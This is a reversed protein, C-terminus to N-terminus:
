SGNRWTLLVKGFNKRGQIYAHAEGAKEAAFCSDVVPSLTGATVLAVLEDLAPKLRKAESWLHAVNVGMVGHNKQMLPLPKFTPMALLGRIAAVLSRRNGRAMSSVGFMYLRGLPALSAYSKKFSDGGVADIAVDVGRGGTIKEVERAFDQTRYDITHQVGSQRLREHKGASATGIITAGRWKCLQVAAQGVGGGASHVLVTDGAGINGLHILMVWATLYNLPIAGATELSVNDGLKSVLGAPCVVTDSYGGFRTFSIVRDGESIGSVGAGVQDVLGSVEYGVVMPLRADPYLGMRAMIDAFNVGSYQVRIRVHGEPAEPDAAERLELVEPGGAKSIWVQRM